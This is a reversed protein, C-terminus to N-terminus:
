EIGGEAAPVAVVDVAFPFVVAVVVAQESLLQSLSRPSGTRNVVMQQEVLSEVAISHQKSAKTGRVGESEPEM